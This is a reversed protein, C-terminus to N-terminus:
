FEMGPIESPMWSVWRSRPAARESPLTGGIRTGHGPQPGSSPGEVGIPRAFPQAAADLRQKLGALLALQALDHVAYAPKLPGALPYDPVGLVRCIRAKLAMEVAYGALYAAGDYIGAAHLAEAERLRLRALCKLEQRNPVGSREVLSSSGM